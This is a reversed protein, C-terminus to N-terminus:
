IIKVRTAWLTGESSTAKKVVSISSTPPVAIVIGPFGAAVPADDTTATGTTSVHFDVDGWLRIRWSTPPNQVNGDDPGADPQFTVATSTLAYSASPGILALASHSM